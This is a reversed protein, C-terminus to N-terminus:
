FWWSEWQKRRQDSREPCLGATRWSSMAGRRGLLVALRAARRAPAARARLDGLREPSLAPNVLNRLRRHDAGGINIINHVIEEYLPSDDIQFLEAITLGPFAAERSRLFFEGAERDLVLYGFPCAALWGDHGRLTAMASRYREGRLGPDTPDFMELALETVPTV